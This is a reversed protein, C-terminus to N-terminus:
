TRGVAKLFISAGVRAVIAFSPEPEPSAHAVRFALRDRYFAIAPGIERTIFFPSIAGLAATM